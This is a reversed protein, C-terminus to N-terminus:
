AASQRRTGLGPWTTQAKRYSTLTGIDVLYESIPYAAMKNVLQPLLHFGIDAPIQQPIFDFIGPTAVLIGSFALNSVAVPPKEVFKRVVHAEDVTVIGCQTANSVEYVGITALRQQRRHFELMRTLNVNTLVDGYFIWFDKESEVWDRNAMLTGASGLLVEEPAIRVKPADRHGNLYAKLVETHSHTNILVETIGHRRCLDLWISLLPVSQIAVLCKPTMATLPRLREGNGAALIFAKM